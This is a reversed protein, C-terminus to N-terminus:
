RLKVKIVVPLHSGKYESFLHLGNKDRNWKIEKDCGLITVRDIIGHFLAAEPNESLALSKVTINMKRNYNLAFVYISDGNVTFRFDQATYETGKGETFTGEIEESPGESSIKWPRSGYIAEQNTKMWRGIERLIERDKEDISGDGKPGVNLLLNGNKSIIDVFTCLIERVTKYELDHTYCWSNRAVATDTQWVYPKAQALKGREIDLIGSGFMCADHKYCVAASRGWEEGRNYYYAMLKKLYPRFAEHQIWWDFYLMEPRYADVLECTRLLWDELYEQSPAPQSFLDYFDREPMAPWYFDGKEMPERIDSPFERGHSMFFWHEARHSSTCFHIGQNELAAKLEGLVDRGPGMEWANYRSIRSRYMQFGDHHEAVPCVYSAGAEAFLEAWEEPHFNEAKFLPIFDKYGFNRHDGYTKRHYEWEDSGKIYMNRSYWESHFAPISYLGWHIFIGFKAKPFWSPVQFRSLSEWNEQFPGKEIVKEIKKIENIM